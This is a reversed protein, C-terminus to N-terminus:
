ECICLYPPCSQAVGTFVYFISPLETCSGCICSWRPGSQAVILLFIVMSPLEPCSNVFVYIHLAVRHMEGVFLYCYVYTGKAGGQTIIIIERMWCSRYFTVVSHHLPVFPVRELFSFDTIKSNDWLLPIPSKCPIWWFVLDWYVCSLWGISCWHKCVTHSSPGGNTWVDNRPDFTQTHQPKLLFGDIKYYKRCWLM